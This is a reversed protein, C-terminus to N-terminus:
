TRLQEAQRHRDSDTNRPLACEFVGFAQVYVTEFYVSQLVTCRQTQDLIFVEQAVYIHITYSMLGCNLSRIIVALHGREAM